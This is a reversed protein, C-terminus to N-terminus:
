SSYERGLQPQNGGGDQASLVLLVCDCQDVKKMNHAAPTQKTKDMVELLAEFVHMRFHVHMRSFMLGIHTIIYERTNHNHVKPASTVAACCKPQQV